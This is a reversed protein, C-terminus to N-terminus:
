VNVLKGYKLEDKLLAYIYGSGELYLGTEEQELKEFLTSNYFTNMADNLEMQEETILLELVDKTIGEKLYDTITSM